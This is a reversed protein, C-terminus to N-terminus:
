IVERPLTFRVNESTTEREHVTVQGLGGLARVLDDVLRSPASAGATIGVTRAGVLWGLEVAEADEV